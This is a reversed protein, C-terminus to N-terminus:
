KVITNNYKYIYDHFKFHKKTKKKSIVRLM